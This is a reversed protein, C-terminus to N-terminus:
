YLCYTKFYWKSRCCVNKESSTWITLAGWKLHNNANKERRFFINWRLYEFSLEFQLDKRVSCVKLFLKHGLILADQRFDGFDPGISAMNSNAHLRIMSRPFQYCFHVGRALTLIYLLNKLSNRAEPCPGFTLLVHLFHGFKTSGSAM